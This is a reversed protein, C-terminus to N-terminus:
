HILGRGASFSLMRRVTVPDLGDARMMMAVVPDDLMEELSPEIGAHEYAAARFTLLEARSSAADARGEGIGRGATSRSPILGKFASIMAQMSTM